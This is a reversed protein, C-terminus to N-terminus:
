KLSRIAAIAASEDIVIANVMGSRLASILPAGKHAGHAVGIRLPVKKLQAPEIGIIRRHLPTKLAIGRADLHIACVDGIAGNDALNRADASSLFGGRVLSSREPEASGIGVVAITLAAFREFTESVVPDSLLADRIRENAVLLPASLLHHSASLTEAAGRVLEAGDIEPMRNGLSGLMQLVQLGTHSTPRLAGVMEALARGWSLGIVDSDSINEGLARAALAGVRQDVQKETLNGRVLVRAFHLEFASNLALELEASRALPHHVRVEVIGSDRAETLLRSIMSRSYNTRGAIQEQSMGEVFYM